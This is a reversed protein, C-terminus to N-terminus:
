MEDVYKIRGCKRCKKKNVDYFPDFQNHSVNSWTHKESKKFGCVCKKLHYDGDVEEYEYSFNHQIRIRMENILSSELNDFINKLIKENM